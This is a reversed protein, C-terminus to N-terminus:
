GNEKDKQVRRKELLNQVRRTVGKVTGVTIAYGIAGTVAGGLFTAKIITIFKM